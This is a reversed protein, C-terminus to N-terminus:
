SSAGNRLEAGGLGHAPPLAPDRRPLGRHRSVAGYRCETVRPLRIRVTDPEAPRVEIDTRVEGRGPATMRLRYRGPALDSLEFTGDERSVTGTAEPVASANPTAELRLSVEGLPRGQPDSIIGVVRRASSMWPESISPISRDCPPTQPPRTAACGGVVIALTLSRCITRLPEM